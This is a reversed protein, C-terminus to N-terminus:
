AESRRLERLADGELVWAAGSGFVLAWFPAGLHLLSLHSSAVAFAVLPGLRVPGGTVEGLAQGLVGLLALGAVALLLPLPVAAPIGAAVGAGLAIALFAVGSVYVSWHRVERAGAEPGAALPTVLAAMCVPVLGFFGGATTGLGTIVDIARAPPRYGQSRLYVVATVNAQLAVLVVVVPTITAIARVSLTPRTAGLAPLSWGGPLPELRGMLAAVAIGVGLAVMVPPVRAGLFRRGLLYTALTAGVLAREQGLAEFTGVVFPLVSAAVVGFVVPPPILATVRRTLGLAGLAAVIAGSATVGGLLEPYPIDRSTTALFAVVSTHWAVILPQRYKATLVLSLLGPIGYLALLWTSTQRPTLAFDHAAALPLALVVISFITVPVAATFPPLFRHRGGQADGTALM